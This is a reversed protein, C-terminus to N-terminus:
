GAFNTSGTGKWKGMKKDMRMCHYWNGSAWSVLEVQWWRMNGILLGLSARQCMQRCEKRVELNKQELSRIREQMASDDLTGGGGGQLAIALQEELEENRIALAEVMDVRGRIEALLEEVSSKDAILEAIKEKQERIKDDREKKLKRDVEANQKRIEEAEILRQQVQSPPPLSSSAHMPDALLAPHTGCVADEADGPPCRKVTRRSPPFSRRKPGKDISRIRPQM